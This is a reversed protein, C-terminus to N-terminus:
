RTPKPARPANASFMFGYQRWFDSWDDATKKEGALQAARLQDQQSKVEMLDKEVAEVRMNNTGMYTNFRQNDSIVTNLSFYCQVAFFGIITLLMPILLGQIKVMYKSIGHDIADDHPPPNPQSM